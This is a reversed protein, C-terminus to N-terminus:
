KQGVRERIIRGMEATDAIRRVILDGATSDRWPTSPAHVVGVVEFLTDESEQEPRVILFEGVRPPAAFALEERSQDRDRTGGLEVLGWKTTM